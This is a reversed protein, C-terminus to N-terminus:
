VLHSKKVDGSKKGRKVVRTNKYAVSPDYRKLLFEQVSEATAEIQDQEDKFKYMFLPKIMKFNAFDIQEMIRNVRAREDNEIKDILTQRDIERFAAAV